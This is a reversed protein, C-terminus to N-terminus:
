VIFGNKPSMQYCHQRAYASFAKSCFGQHACAANLAHFLLAASCSELGAFASSIAILLVCIPTALKDGAWLNFSAPVYRSPILFSHARKEVIHGANFTGYHNSHAAFSMSLHEM